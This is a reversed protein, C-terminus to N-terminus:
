NPPAAASGVLTQDVFFDVRQIQVGVPVTVEVRLTEQGTVVAGDGHSVWRLQVDEAARLLAGAAAAAMVLGIALARRM